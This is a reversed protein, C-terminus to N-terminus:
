LKVIKELGLKRIAKQKLEENLSIKGTFLDTLIECFKQGEKKIMFNRISAYSYFFRSLKGNFRLEPLIREELASLYDSEAILPDEFHQAIAKGALIGSHIGNTIGEATLPDAFGAADGTLFVNRSVFKDSRFGVPIQFGHAEESIVLRIGLKRVYQQYYDRLNVRDKKFTAIGISLHNAKPFCWGYGHPIADIDFRAENKLKDFDEPGVEVEYELAPILARTEKWGALKATPGLAGDAAVVYKTQLTQKDTQLIIEEQFEIKQLMNKELLVAGNKIAEQCILQDLKDRMVMSIIPFNRKSVYVQDLQSFYVHIDSFEKEIATELNFPLMERGRFVLGGGCTKYRPLNEKELIAVKLGAKAMEYAAMGGSPGSGIVIADFKLM